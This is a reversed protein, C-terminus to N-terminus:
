TSMDDIRWGDGTHEMTVTVHDEYTVPTTQKSNTTPRDVLLLVEVRDEGARVIASEVVKTTVVTRTQPANKRITAFLPRFADDRYHTTLYSEAEKQGGALTRYDYSLVPVVAREAVARAADAGSEIAKPDPRTWSFAALVILVLAVVAATALLWLPVTRTSWRSRGEVPPDHEVAVLGPEIDSIGPETTPLDGVASAATGAPLDAPLQRRSRRPRRPRSPRSPRRTPALRDESREPGNGGVRSTPPQEEDAAAPGAEAAKGSTLGTDYDHRQDADLLVAAAESLRAFRRDTPDLDAIASKWAARIEDTSATPEVDLLDYWTPSSM